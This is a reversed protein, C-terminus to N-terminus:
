EKGLDLSKYLLHKDSLDFLAGMRRSHWKFRTTKTRNKRQALAEALLQSVIKGIPRGDQKQLNKVETLVSNEIDITTRAMITHILAILV